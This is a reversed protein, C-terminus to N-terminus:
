HEESRMRWKGELTAESYATVESLMRACDTRSPLPPQPREAPTGFAARIYTAYGYGARIVHHMITQISRCSEDPTELDRVAEFETDSLGSVLVSLEAVAREYEDMMAGVAGPRRTHTQLM